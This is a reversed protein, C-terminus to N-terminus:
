NNRAHRLRGIQNLLHESTTPMILQRGGNMADPDPLRAGADYAGRHYALFIAADKYSAFGNPAHKFCFYACQQEHFQARIAAQRTDYNKGDSAGDSLRLAMWPYNIREDWTLNEVVERVVDYARKAADDVIICVSCIERDHQCRKNFIM